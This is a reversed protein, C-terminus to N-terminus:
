RIILAESQLVANSKIASQKKHKRLEILRNKSGTCIFDRDSDKWWVNECNMKSGNRGEMQKKKWGGHDHTGPAGFIGAGFADLRCVRTKRCDMYFEMKSIM